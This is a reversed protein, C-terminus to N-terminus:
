AKRQSGAEQIIGKVIDASLALDKVSIHEENTHMGIMGIGLLVSPLGYRNYWNADSGGGSAFRRPSLGQKRIAEEALTIVPADGDMVFPHYMHHLVMEAKGGPYAAETERCRASLDAAIAAMKEERLSRSALRAECHDPVINVARGGSLLGINFTTEEDLRGTKLGSLAHIMMENASVGKEPEIGAHAARGTMTLTMQDQGVAATCISGPEGNVDLVWAMDIGKLFDRDMVRSGHVGGEEHVTILLSIRGHPIDEEKASQIGELIAALGAKDDAGLITEGASHIIGKEVVPEVGECVEVCDMHGAFAISAAGPVTEPFVALLNGANGGLISAAEDERVTAGMGTLLPVLYDRMEKEHLSPSDIRCMNCLNDTARKENAM